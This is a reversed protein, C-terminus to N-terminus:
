LTITWSGAAAFSYTGQVAATSRAQFNQLGVFAPGTAHKATVSAAPYLDLTAPTTGGILASLDGVSDDWAVDITGRVDQFGQVYTLNTDGFSTVDELGPQSQLTWGRVSGVVTSGVKVQGTKGHWRAM